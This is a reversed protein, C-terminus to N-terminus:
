LREGVRRISSGIRRLTSYLNKWIEMLLLLAFIPVTNRRRGEATEAAKAARACAWSLRLYPFPRLGHGTIYRARQDQTKKKEPKFCYFCAGTAYLFRGRRWLYLLLPRDAGFEIGPWFYNALASRRMLGYTHLYGSRIYDRRLLGRWFRNSGDCACDFTERDANRWRSPEHFIAVDSFALVARPDSELAELLREVYNLSHRDDHAAWMFYDSRAQDFVFRFNEEARLLFPQRFYRIRSDRAAFSRCVEATEDTSDNDSIIIELSTHTQAVVQELAEKFLAGGNRVPMGISVRRSGTMVTRPLPSADLSGNSIAM